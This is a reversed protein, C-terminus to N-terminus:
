FEDEPERDYGETSSGDSGVFGKEVKVFLLEVNPPLYINENETLEGIKM